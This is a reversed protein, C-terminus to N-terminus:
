CAAGAALFTGLVALRAWWYAGRYDMGAGRSRALQCSSPNACAYQEYGFCIRHFAAARGFGTTRRGYDVRVSREALASTLIDGILAAGRHSSAIAAMTSSETGNTEDPCPVPTILPVTVSEAPWGIRPARTLRSPPVTVTPLPCAPRYVTLATLAPVRVTRARTMPYRSCACVTVTM